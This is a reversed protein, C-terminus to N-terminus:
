ISYCEGSKEERTTCSTYRVKGVGERRSLAKHLGAIVVETLHDIEEQSDGNLKIHLSVSPYSAVTEYLDDSQRESEKALVRQQDFDPTGVSVKSKMSDQPHYKGDKEHRELNPPIEEPLEEMLEKQLQRRATWESNVTREDTEVIHNVEVVDGLGREKLSEIAREKQKETYAKWTFVAGNDGFADSLDVEFEWDETRHINTSELDVGTVLTKFRSMDLSQEDYYGVM